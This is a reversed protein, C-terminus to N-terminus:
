LVKQAHLKLNKVSIGEFNIAYNSGFTSITGSAEYFRLKIKKYVTDSHPKIGNNYLVLNKGTLFMM